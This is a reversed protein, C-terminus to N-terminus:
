PPSQRKKASPDAKSSRNKPAGKKAIVSAVEMSAILGETTAHSTAIQAETSSRGHLVSKQSSGEKTIVSAVEM